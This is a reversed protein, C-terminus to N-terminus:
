NNEVVVVETAGEAIVADNNSKDILKFTITYTGAKEFTVKWPQTAAYDAAIPFGSEPGWVGNNTFTYETNTTDTAKFTVNGTSIAENSFEFRVKEYGTQKAVDTAFTVPVTVETGAVIGEPVEFAFKYTSPMAVANEDLAYYQTQDVKITTNIATPANTGTVVGQDNVLWISPKGYAESANVLNGTVTLTSNTLEAATGKSVEIGGFENGSVTTTGTLEVESGNVLIGGDAGSVTVDKLTVDTANYVQIGYVGQWKNAEGSMTVTVDNIEVGSSLVLIGQRKGNELTNLANTFTLVKSTGNIAVARDVVLAEGIDSIDATINIAEINTNALAAKLEVLDKVNKTTANQAETYYQIQDAKITTNTTAPVNEGVVTGQHKILWISPMGYEESDNVLTGTVTLTSNTLEAATGKSVEIGGFENGNVTTVGTLEVESGNVLIGGDAGSATVDKLTVDTANYVQIGYVGQWKNAEGSMKVTVGNIQVGNSLVLIGQRKGNELTNLADTFTLIKSTGNIAVARDVVLAEGIDSIDAIINITEINTNALAAKLGALDKVDAVPSPTVVVNDTGEGKNVTADIGTIIEVQANTSSSINVTGSKVEVSGPLTVDVNNLNGSLVVKETSTKTAVDVKAVTAGESVTLQVAANVKVANNVTTTADINVSAPTAITVTEFNGKLNVANEATPTAKPSITVNEFPKVNTAGEAVELLAGSFVTSETITANGEVVIHADDNNDQVTLTKVNSSGKVYLSHSGVNNVTVGDVTVNELIVEGAGFNILLNGTVNLNRLTIAQGDTQNIFINGEITTPNEADEPGFTGTDSSIIYNFKHTGGDNLEENDGLNQVADVWAVISSDASTKIEDFLKNAEDIDEQLMTELSKHYADFANKMLGQQVVDVATSYSGRYFIPMDPDIAAKADNINAQTPNTQAKVVAEYAIVFIPHQIKDVQKSFEGIAWDLHKPILAIKSRAENVSKQTKVTMANVTANYANAYITDLESLTAAKVPVTNLMGGIMTASILSCLVRLRKNM